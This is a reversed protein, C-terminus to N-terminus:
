GITSLDEDCHTVSSDKGEVINQSFRHTKGNYRSGKSINEQSWLPQMNTYHFCERQQEPDTLDFSACPRIHDIHWKDKGLGHNEWTMGAKFLTELYTRLFEVSCGVLKMTPASKRRGSMADRCRGRLCTVLRYNPDERWMRKRRIAQKASREQKKSDRCIKQKKLITERNLNHYIKRQELVEKRNKRYGAKKQALVKERNTERYIKKKTNIQERNREYYSKANLKAKERLCKKCSPKHGDKSQGCAHFDELPQDIKCLSCTKM